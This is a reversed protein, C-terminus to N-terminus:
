RLSSKTLSPMVMHARSPNVFCFFLSVFWSMLRPSETASAHRDVREDFSSSASRRFVFCCVLFFPLLRHCGGRVLQHVVGLDSPDELLLQEDAFRGVGHSGQDVRESEGLLLQRLPES